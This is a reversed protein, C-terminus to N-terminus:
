YMENFIIFQNLQSWLDLEVLIKSKRTLPFFCGKGDKSYRRELMMDLINNVEFECDEHENYYKNDHDGLGVNDIMMWFLDKSKMQTKEYSIYSVGKWAFAIMMELVRCEGFIAMDNDTCKNKRAWIWRLYLGDSARNEDFSVTSYFTKKWLDYLLLSFQKDDRRKVKSKLWKFYLMELQTKM